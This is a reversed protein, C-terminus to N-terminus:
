QDEIKITQMQTKSIGFRAGYKTWYQTSARIFMPKTLPMSVSRMRNKGSQIDKVFNRIGRRALFAFPTTLIAEGSAIKLTAGYSLGYKECFWQVMEVAVDNQSPELFGCNILVHIKTTRAISTHALSKLFDILVAPLTDAYLPFVLVIHQYQAIQKCVEACDKSLVSISDIQDPWYQEFIQTFKKSNSTQYRPSGNVILLREM